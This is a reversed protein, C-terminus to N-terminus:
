YGVLNPASELYKLMSIMAAGPEGSALPQSWTSLCYASAKPTIRAPALRQRKAPYNLAPTLSRRRKQELLKGKKAAKHWYYQEIFRQVSYFKPTFKYSFNDCLKPALAGARDCTHV